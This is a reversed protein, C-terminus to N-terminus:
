ARQGQLRLTKALSNLMKKTEIRWWKQRPVDRIAKEEKKELEEKSSFDM